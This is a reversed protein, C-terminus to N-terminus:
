VIRKGAKEEKKGLKEVSKRKKNEIKNYLLHPKKLLPTKAIKVSKALVKSSGVFKDAAKKCLFAFIKNVPYFVFSLIKGILRLLKRLTRIVVSGVTIIYIAFGLLNGIIFYVRLEGRAAAATFASLFICYGIFFVIDEAMVLVFNHPVILRLARFVDYCVGLAAGFLCSLGFLILEEHVTFFTEPVNM